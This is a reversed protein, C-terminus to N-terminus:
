LSWVMRHICRGYDEESVKLKQAEELSYWTVKELDIKEQQSCSMMLLSALLFLVFHKM